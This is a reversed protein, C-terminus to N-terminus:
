HRRLTLLSSLAPAIQNADPLYHTQTHLPCPTNSGESRLRLTEIEVVGDTSTLTICGTETTVLNIDGGYCWYYVIGDRIEKNWNGLNYGYLNSRVLATQIDYFSIVEELSDTTHRVLRKGEPQRVHDAEPYLIPLCAKFPLLSGEFFVVPLSCCVFLGTIVGFVVGKRRM